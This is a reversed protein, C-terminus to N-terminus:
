EDSDDYENFDEMTKYEDNEVLVDYEIGGKTYKIQTYHAGISGSVVGFVREETLWVLVEDNTM